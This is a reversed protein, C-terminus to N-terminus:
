GAAPPKGDHTFSTGDEFTIDVTLDLDELALFHQERTALDALSEADLPGWIAAAKLDVISYMFATFYARGEDTDPIIEYIKGRRKMEMYADYMEAPDMSSAFPPGSTAEETADATADSTADATPSSTPAVTPQAVAQSTAAVPQASPTGARMGLVFLFAIAGIVVLAALTVLVVVKM